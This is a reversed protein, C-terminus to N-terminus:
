KIRMVVRHPLPVSTTGMKYIFFSLCLSRLVQRLSVALLHCLQSWFGPKLAWAGAWRSPPLAMSDALGTLRPMESSTCEITM